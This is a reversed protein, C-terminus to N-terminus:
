HTCADGRRTYMPLKLLTHLLPIPSESDEIRKHITQNIWIALFLSRILANLGGIPEQLSYLTFVNCKCYPKPNFRDPYISDTYCTKLTCRAHPSTWVFKLAKIEGQLNKIVSNRTFICCNKKERAVELNIVTPDSWSNHLASFYLNGLSKFKYDDSWLVLSLTPILGMAQSIDDQPTLWRISGM